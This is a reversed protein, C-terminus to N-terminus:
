SYTSSTGDPNSVCAEIDGEIRYVSLTWGDVERVARGDSEIWSVGEFRTIARLGDSQKRLGFYGDILDCM